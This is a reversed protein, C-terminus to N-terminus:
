RLSIIIFGPQCKDYASKGVKRLFFQSASNEERFITLYEPQSEPYYHSQHGFISVTIFYTKSCRQM